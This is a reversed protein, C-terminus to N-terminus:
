RQHQADNVVEEPSMSGGSAARVTAEGCGTPHGLMKSYIPILESEHHWQGYVGLKIQERLTLKSWGLEKSLKYLARSASRNAMSLTCTERDVEFQWTVALTTVDSVQLHQFYRRYQWMMIAGIDYGKLNSRLKEFREVITIEEDSTLRSRSSVSIEICEKTNSITLNRPQIDLIKAKPWQRFAFRRRKNGSYKGTKESVELVVEEDLTNKLSDTVIVDCIRGPVGVFTYRGYKTGRISVGDETPDLLNMVEKLQDIPVRYRYLLTVMSDTM